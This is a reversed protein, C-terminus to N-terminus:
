SEASKLRYMQILIPDYGTAHGEFWLTQQRSIPRTVFQTDRSDVKTAMGDDDVFWLPYKSYPRVSRRRNRPRVVDRRGAPLYEYALKPIRKPAYRGNTIFITNIKM